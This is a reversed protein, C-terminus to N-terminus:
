GAVAATLTNNIKNYMTANQTSVNKVATVIALFMLGVILGYEIATAGDDERLFRSLTEIAPASM